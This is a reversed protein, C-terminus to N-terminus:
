ARRSSRNHSTRAPRGGTRAPVRGECFGPNDNAELSERTRGTEVMPWAARLAEITAQLRKKREEELNM